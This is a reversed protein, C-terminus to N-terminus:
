THKLNIRTKPDCEQGPYSWCISRAWDLKASSKARWVERQWRTMEAETNRPRGCPCATKPRRGEDGLDPSTGREENGPDHSTTTQDTTM